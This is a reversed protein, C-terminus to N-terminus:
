TYVSALVNDTSLKVRFSFQSFAMQKNNTGHALLQLYCCHVVSEEKHSLDTLESM